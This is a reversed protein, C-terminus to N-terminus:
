RTEEKRRPIPEDHYDGATATPLLEIEAAEAGDAELIIYRTEKM